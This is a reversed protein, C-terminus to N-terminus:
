KRNSFGTSESYKEGNKKKQAGFFFVQCNNFMEKKAGLRGSGAWRKERSSWPCWGVSLVSDHQGVAVICIHRRSPTLLVGLFSSHKVLTPPKGWGM